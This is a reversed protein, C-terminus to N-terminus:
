FPQAAAVYRRGLPDILGAAILELEHALLAEALRDVENLAPLLYRFYYASSKQRVTAAQGALAAGILASSHLELDHHHQNCALIGLRHQLFETPHPLLGSRHLLTALSDFWAASRSPEGEALFDEVIIRGFEGLVQFAAAVSADLAKVHHLSRTFLVADFTGASFDPWEAQCADVGRSRAKAVNAPDSDIAVVELGAIGLAAALAGDGCGVELLRRAGEPLASRVFNLTYATACDIM